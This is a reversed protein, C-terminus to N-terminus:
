HFLWDAGTLSSPAVHDLTTLTTPWPNGSGWGDQDFSVKTGGAGDAELRLYGDAIPDGGHYGAAAFLPRLDLVDVGPQFDTIHGPNWVLASFAFHDAGAGGTLQDPGQGASLTDAGAGGALHDAYVSSTLVVGGAAPPPPPPPPSTPAAGGAGNFVQAATLGTPSVGDLTVITFPWPQAPNTGDPDLMVKTGGMGDSVFTVYGDAVPDSGRYGGAYLASLDLKDVGPQFDTIHGASWPMAKFAFVDAGAGGALHDAGQSANITDAGAGGALTAGPAAATLVQGGSAPPPAAPPPETPTAPAHYNPDPLNYVRVYDVKMEAPWPTSGNPSGPWNGGVALNVIMKLPTSMEPPTATQWVPTGDVYFTITQPSWMTGYTHFGDGYPNFSANGLAPVSASHIANNATKTDSGLGELVDIERNQEGLLWFAPWLGQGHPLEARVEFYGYAQAFNSEIMGSSYRYGWMQGAQADSVPKATITLVGNSFSFPDLGLPAGSTGKFGASTYLQQEGNGPLTFSNLGDGAYGYNTAWNRGITSADDFEERFTPTGLSAYDIPLQFDAAHFQGVTANRFLITTGGDNLAVDSGQQTMAAKVADFSTLPGGILRLHDAGETFNQIVKAGEGQAVIFTTGSGGSGVFVDEGRGGYITVGPADAKIVNARDNGAAYNRDGFVILNSLPADPSLTYSQWIKATDVGPSAVMPAHEDTLWDYTADSQALWLGSYNQYAL